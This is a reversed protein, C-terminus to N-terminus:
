REISHYICKMNEIEQERKRALEYNSSDRCNRKPHATPTPRDWHTSLRDIVRVKSEAWVNGEKSSAIM